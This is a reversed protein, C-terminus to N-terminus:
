PAIRAILRCLQVTDASYGAPQSLVNRCRLKIAQQDGGGLASYASAVQTASQNGGGNGGGAGGGGAGGGGGGGGGVDPLLGGLGLGGLNVTGNTTGGGQGLNVLNGNNNTITALAGTGNADGGVQAVNAGGVTVNGTTGLPGGTVAVGGQGANLDLAAVPAISIGLLLAASAFALIASKTKM